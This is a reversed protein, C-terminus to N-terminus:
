FVWAKWFSLRFNDFSLLKREFSLKESFRQESSARFSKKHLVLFCILINPRFELFIGFVWPFKPMRFSLKKSVWDGLNGSFNRFFQPRPQLRYKAHVVTIPLIQFTKICHSHKFICNNGTSNLLENAAYTLSGKM